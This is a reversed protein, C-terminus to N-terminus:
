SDSGEEEDFDLQKDVKEQLHKYTKYRSTWKSLVFWQRVGIVFFIAAIAIAVYGALRFNSPDSTLLPSVHWSVPIAIITAIIMILVLKKTMNVQRVLEDAIRLINQSSIGEPAGDRNREQDSM